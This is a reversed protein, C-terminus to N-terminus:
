AFHTILQFVSFEGGLINVGSRASSDLCNEHCIRKYCEVSKIFCLCLTLSCQFSTM